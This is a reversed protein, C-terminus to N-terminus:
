GVDLVVKAPHGHAAVEQAAAAEELPFRTVPRPRLAGDRLAADIDAVAADEAARAM